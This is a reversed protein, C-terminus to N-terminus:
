QQGVSRLNSDHKDHSKGAAARVLGELWDQHGLLMLNPKKGAMDAAPKGIQSEETLIRVRKRGEQGAPSAVNEVIWAHYVDLEKSGDEGQKTARWAIRGPETATPAESEMVESPLPPLGFTSFTFRDGKNLMTSGDRSPPTIQSCNAYYTEWKTIDALLPWVDEASLDCVVIANSVFNDTTGPLYRDPWRISSAM